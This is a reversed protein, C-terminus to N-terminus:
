FRRDLDRGRPRAFHRRRLRASEADADTDTGKGGQGRAHAKEAAMRMPWPEWDEVPEVDGADSTPDFSRELISHDVVDLEDIGDNDGQHRAPWPVWDMIKEIAGSAEDASRKLLSSATDPVFPVWDLIKQVVGGQGEEGDVEEDDDFSRKTAAVSTYVTNKYVGGCIQSKDGGCKSDCGSVPNETFTDGCYCQTMYQLGVYKYGKASCYAICKAATM